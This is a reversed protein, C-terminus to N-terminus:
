RSWIAPAPWTLPASRERRMSLPPTPRGPAWISSRWRARPAPLPSRGLFPRRRKPAAWRFRLRCNTSLKVPSSPWRCAIRSSWRPSVWRRSWRSSGALGGTVSVPVATDVALLDQIRIEQAPKNTLEAMTQRVHELMGGINTGAEGAVNDLKGCGDVAKMIAEAGAAVDVQVSRGQAILLLNGAPIARAKVDGSPTKVVVASRNGILARAMPVINKTEEANLDFVTAIGYPNSLTEIIKGPLAVEVAALMGLPIRDIHQVEDIVPLPQQLRNNVLVGDDQQLIIGTIQYGAATAANVMAAVDAFDFASSVVLIYPTDASCSLLAEPTITIGVGLGVGGPTKPNHGIMTSETIITETITEMAVDGIVPTAENIRILSIDSLQIGAAKAAQTLAEQIGFVNRLTGKIGTTEALASHRINLVGADDVTALAVETSSNGIDIGAIYRM